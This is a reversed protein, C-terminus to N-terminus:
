VRRWKVGDPTDELIINKVKLEDRIEDALKYDKNKRAENRKEILEIIEDELLEEKKSLLGLIDSLENFINYVLTLISKSNEKSLNSNSYRVIEFLTSIADATNMDDDMSQIFKEKYKEIDLKIKKDIDTLEREESDEILDELNKKGIYLRDLGNKAQSMAEKGFNLPKRYHASLMFFRLVELDYENGIERVTFFNNKSKSMKQNEVNIMANHLWYNAFSKGTLSESQAIENEHHPFKLDEGGAHIDITDGLYKRAMTSCEIHWGPRGKGWPSEWAPEGPKANKWLAFDMPNNKIESIEVRAGSVLDEINKKSLKGYDNLKTIDFYVDGNSEYAYGKEILGEVFKIIDDIHETAKPHKIEDEEILLSKSDILFEKIYRDALEKVTSGEENAKKILKDDIDTFNLLFDVNYGKYKFYRRLVDFVILPRANGVHIYNYVTPGCVYMTVKNPDISTFEEKTRTLTNYLKM